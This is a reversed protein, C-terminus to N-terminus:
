SINRQNIMNTKLKTIKAEGAKELSDLSVYGEEVLLKLVGIFDGIEQELEKLNRDTAGFRRRKSVIKIIRSLIEISEAAEEQLIGFLEEERPNM